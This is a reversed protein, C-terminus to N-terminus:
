FVSAVVCAESHNGGWDEVLVVHVSFIHRVWAIPTATVELESLGKFGSNFGM